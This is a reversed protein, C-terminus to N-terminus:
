RVGVAGNRADTPQFQFREDAVPELAARNEEAEDLNEGGFEELRLNEVNHAQLAPLHEVEVRVDRLVINKASQLKVGWESKSRMKEITIGEVPMEPLGRMEIAIKAGECEIGSIFVDRFQPTAESKPEYLAVVPEGEGWATGGYFMDFSIAAGGIESMRIDRIEINEVIGGRGRATKFRIGVDTGRFDCNSVRVDRVGGSMESGVVLGGHGHLVRCDRVVINECPRNRERGEADKGSKLCIADDGVDLTCDSIEVGRCSELDIGDGNQAFWPNLVTLNRAIVDECLLLHINWAPSNRFTPGDLTVGRCGTIQVMNPRLFDRAPAFAEIRPEGQSLRLARVLTEGHMAGPTPWWIGHEENVVGGSERLTQWQAPTMKMQKVPRWAEGHGDFVGSGTIAINELGTGWLPSRCQVTQQGEYWAICLPFQDFDGSFQILAGAELHLEVNSRLQIPGSLYTGQPVVVRGGGAMECKVLAANLASTDLTQGDGRAGFDRVNFARSPSSFATTKM